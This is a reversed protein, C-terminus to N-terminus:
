FAEKEPFTEGYCKATVDKRMASITERAVIKGGIAAQLATAFMQKPNFRKTEFLNRSRAAKPAAKTLIMFSLADVPEGNVMITLKVLQGDEYGDM